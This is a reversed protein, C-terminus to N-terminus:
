ARPRHCAATSWLAATTRVGHEDLYERSESSGAPLRPVHTYQPPPVDASAIRNPPLMAGPALPAAAAHRGPPPSGAPHEAAGAAGLSRALQGLRRQSRQQTM